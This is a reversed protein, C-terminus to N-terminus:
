EVIVLCIVIAAPDVEPDTLKVGIFSLIATFSLLAGIVYLILQAIGTGIRGVIMSGVGPFFINVIVGIAKM